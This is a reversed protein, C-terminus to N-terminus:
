KSMQGGASLGAATGQNPHLSCLPPALPVVEGFPAPTEGSCVSVSPSGPAGPFQGAAKWSLQGDQVLTATVALDGQTRPLTLPRQPGPPPNLAGARGGPQCTGGVM